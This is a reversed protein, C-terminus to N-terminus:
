GVLRVFLMNEAEHFCNFLYIDLPLQRKESAHSKESSNEIARVKFKRSEFIDASGFTSTAISTSVTSLGWVGAGNEQWFDGVMVLTSSM